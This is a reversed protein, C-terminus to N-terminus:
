LNSIYDTPAFSPASHGRLSFCFGRGCSVSPCETPCAGGDCDQGCKVPKQDAPSAARKVSIVMFWDVYSVDIVEETGVCHM